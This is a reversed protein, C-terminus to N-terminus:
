FPSSHIVPNLPVSLFCYPLLHFDYCSFTVVSHITKAVAIADISHDAPAQPPVLPSSSYSDAAHALHQLHHVALCLLSQLFYPEARASLIVLYIARIEYKRCCDDGVIKALNYLCYILLGLPRWNLGSFQYSEGSNPTSMM